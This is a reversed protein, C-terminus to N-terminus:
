SSLGLTKGISLIRFSVRPLLGKQPGPIAPARSLQHEEPALTSLQFWERRQPGFCVNALARPM